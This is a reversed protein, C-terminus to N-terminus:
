VHRLSRHRGENGTNDATETPMYHVCKGDPVFFLMDQPCSEEWAVGDSCRVYHQHAAAYQATSFEERTNNARAFTVFAPAHTNLYLGDKRAQM